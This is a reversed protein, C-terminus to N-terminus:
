PTDEQRAAEPIGPPVGGTPSGEADATGVNFSNPMLWRTGSWTSEDGMRYWAIGNALQTHYAIDNPKGANYIEDVEAQSFTAHWVSVENINGKFSATDSSARAGINVAVNNTEITKDAGPVIDSGTEISNVYIKREGTASDYTCALHQWVGVNATNIVLQTENATVTHLTFMWKGPNNTDQHLSWGSTGTHKDVVGGEILPDLDTIKVWVSITLTDTLVDFTGEDGVTVFDGENDGDFYFSYKDEFEAPPVPPDPVPAVGGGSSVAGGYSAEVGLIPPSDFRQFKQRRAELVKGRAKISEEVMKKMADERKM